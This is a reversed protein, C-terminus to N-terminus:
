LTILYFLFNLMFIVRYVYNKSSLFPMQSPFCQKKLIIINTTSFSVQCKGRSSSHNLYCSVVTNSDSTSHNDWSPWCKNYLVRKYSIQCFSNELYVLASRWINVPKLYTIMNKRVKLCECGNWYILVACSLM